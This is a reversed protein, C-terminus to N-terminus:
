RDTERTHFSTGPNRSPIVVLGGGGQGAGVRELASPAEELPVEALMDVVVRGDSMLAALEELDETRPASFFGVIRQPVFLSRVMAGVTRGFGMTARGGTGGVIVLTGRPTLVRLLEGVARNGALDIVVDYGTGRADISERTYDIVEDAGLRRVRDLNRTGAVGTVSAGLARAVQVAWSGVGGSAGIVLVRQGAKVGGADRVAQLAALGSVPAAAAAPFPVSPPKRALAGEPVTMWEALAGPHSGFVEDGPSWQGVGEGVTEVIGAFALGGVPDRPTRLGYMPRAIWPWGRTILWNGRALGAAEVRVLVAGPPVSPRPIERLRLVEPAPGFGSQVLARM